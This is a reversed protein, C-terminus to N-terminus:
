KRAVAIIIVLIILLICIVGIGWTKTDKTVAKLKRGAVGLRSQTRDVAEDVEELLDAHLDLEDSIM